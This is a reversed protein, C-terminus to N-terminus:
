SPGGVDCIIEDRWVPDGMRLVCGNIFTFDGGRLGAVPWPEWVGLRYPDNPVVFMPTGVNGYAFRRDAGLVGGHDDWLVRDARSMKFIVPVRDAADRALALAGDRYTDDDDLFMLHTGTATDMGATRQAYGSGAGGRATLFRVNGTQYGRTLAEARYVDGNEDAVVILEDTPHLQPVISRVTAALSARGLTPVIVSLSTM